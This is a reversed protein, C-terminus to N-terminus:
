AASVTSGRFKRWWDGADRPSWPHARALAALDDVLCTPRDSPDKALCALILRELAAPIPKPSRESPPVPCSYLHHACMELMSGADFVPAGTLLFYGVGGLGYLDARADVDMPARVMEPALYTPTGAIADSGTLTTEGVGDASKVLGFDLVKVCDPSYGRECLLVNAPKVDRHVLGARHAEALACALQRLLHVVRAPSQPGHQQVLDQLSVGDVYEMAYYFLGNATRGYDYIAVINPHTLLATLRAEREFRLLNTAVAGEALLLKIAAPRKLLSHQALYVSGMGGEGIKSLLRYQGLGRAAEPDRERGYVVRSAVTTAVAIVSSWIASGLTFALVLSCALAIALAVDAFRLAALSVRGRGVGTSSISEIGSALLKRATEALGVAFRKRVAEDVILRGLTIEVGRHSM